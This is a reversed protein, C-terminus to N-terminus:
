SRGDMTMAATDMERLKEAGAKSSIDYDKWSMYLAISQLAISALHFVSRGTSTFVVAYTSLAIIATVIMIIIVDGDLDKKFEEVTKVEYANKSINSIVMSMILSAASILMLSMVIDVLYNTIKGYILPLASAGLIVFVWFRPTKWDIKKDNTKTKTM